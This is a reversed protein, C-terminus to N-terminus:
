GNNDISNGHSVSMVYLEACDDHDFSADEFRFTDNKAANYKCEKHFYERGILLKQVFYFAGLTQLGKCDFNLLMIEQM